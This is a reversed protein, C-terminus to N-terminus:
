LYDRGPLSCPYLSVGFTGLNHIMKQTQEYITDFQHKNTEAMVGLMHMILMGGALGRRGTIIKFEGELAVDDDVYILGIKVDQNESQAKFREVAMGFNLRDGTYNNCLVLTGHPTLITKLADVVHKAPPSAYIDGSIAASTGNRGVLSAAYPEHGSGGGCLIM